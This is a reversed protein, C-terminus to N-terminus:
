YIYQKCDSINQKKNQKNQKENKPKKTTTKKYNCRVEKTRTSTLVADDGKLELPVTM